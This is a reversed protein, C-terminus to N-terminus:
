GVEGARASRGFVEDFGMLMAEHAWDQTYDCTPCVWGAETAVLLRENIVERLVYRGPGIHRVRTAESTGLTDRCRACTFPHAWPKAQFRNLAAVQESTWPAEIQRSM